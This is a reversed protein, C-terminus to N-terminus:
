SGLGMMGVSKCHSVESLNSFCCGATAPSRLGFLGIRFTDTPDLASVSIRIPRQHDEPSQCGSAAM